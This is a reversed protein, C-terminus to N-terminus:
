VIILHIRITCHIQFICRSCVFPFSNQTFRTYILRFLILEPFGLPLRPVDVEFWDLLDQVTSCYGDLFPLQEAHISYLDRAKCSIPVHAHTYIHTYLCLCLCLCVRACVCMSVYVRVCGTSLMYTRACVCVCVCAGVGVCAHAHTPTHAHTHM